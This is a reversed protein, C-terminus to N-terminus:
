LPSAGRVGVGHEADCYEKFEKPSLNDIEPHISAAANKLIEAQKSIVEQRILALPDITARELKGSSALPHKLASQNVEQPKINGVKGGDKGLVSVESQEALVIADRSKTTAIVPSSLTQTQKKPALAIEEKLIRRVEKTYQVKLQSKKNLKSPDTFYDPSEAVANKVAVRIAAEREKKTGVTDM